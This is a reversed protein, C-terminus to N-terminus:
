FVLDYTRWDNSEIHDYLKQWEDETAFKFRIRPETYFEIYPDYANTRPLACIAVEKYRKTMKIYEELQSDDWYPTNLRRKLENQYCDDFDIFQEVAAEDLYAIGDVNMRLIRTGDFEIM